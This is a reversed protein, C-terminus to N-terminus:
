EVSIVNGDGGAASAMFDRGGGVGGVGCGWLTIFEVVAM